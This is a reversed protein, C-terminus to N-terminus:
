QQEIQGLSNQKVWAISVLACPAGRRRRSSPWSCRWWAAHGRSPLCCPLLAACDAAHAALVRRATRAPELPSYSVVWRRPQLWQDISYLKSFEQVQRDLRDDVHQQAPQQQM